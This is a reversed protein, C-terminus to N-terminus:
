GRFFYNLFLKLFTIVFVCFLRSYLIFHRGWFNSLYNLPIAFRTTTALFFNSVRTLIHSHAPYKLASRQRYVPLALQCANRAATTTSHVARPSHPSGTTCASSLRKCLGVLVRNTASPYYQVHKGIISVPRGGGALRPPTAAVGGNTGILFVISWGYLVAFEHLLFLPLLPL